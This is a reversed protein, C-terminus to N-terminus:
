LLTFLPTLTLFFEEKKKKKGSRRPRREKDREVKAADWDELNGPMLGSM